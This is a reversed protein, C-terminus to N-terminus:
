LVVKLSGQKEVCGRWGTPCCLIPACTPDLMDRRQLFCAIPSLHLLLLSCDHQVPHPPPYLSPHLRPLGPQSSQSLFCIGRGRTYIKADSPKAATLSLLICMALEKLVVCQRSNHHIQWASLVSSFFAAYPCHLVTLASAFKVGFVAHCRRSNHLPQCHGATVKGLESSTARAPPSAQRHGVDVDMKVAAQGSDINTPQWALPEREVKVYANVPDMVDVEVMPNDEEQFGVGSGQQVDEDKVAGVTGVNVTSAERMPTGAQMGSQLGQRDSGITTGHGVPSSGKATPDAGLLQGHQAWHAQGNVVGQAPSRERTRASGDGAEYAPQQSMSRGQTKDLAELPAPGSLPLDLLQPRAELDAPHGNQMPDVEASAATMRVSSQQQQQQQQQDHSSRHHEHKIPAADAVDLKSVDQEPKDEGKVSM